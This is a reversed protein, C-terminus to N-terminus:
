SDGFEEFINSATTLADARVPTDLIDLPAASGRLPTVSIASGPSIKYVSYGSPSNGSAVILVAGGSSLSSPVVPTTM